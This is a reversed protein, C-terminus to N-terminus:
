ELWLYCIAEVVGQDNVGLYWPAATAFLRM